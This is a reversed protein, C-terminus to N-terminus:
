VKLNPIFYQASNKFFSVASNQNKNVTSFLIGANIFNSLLVWVLLSYKASHLITLISSRHFRMYDSFVTHNYHNTLENLELSSGISGKLISYLDFAFLVVIALQIFYNTLTIQWNAFIQKVENQYYKFM